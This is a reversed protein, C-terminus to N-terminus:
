CCSWVHNSIHMWIKEGGIPKLAIAAGEAFLSLAPSTWSSPPVSLSFSRSLSVLFFGRQPRLFLACNLGCRDTLCTCTHAWLSSAYQIFYTYWKLSSAFWSPAICSFFQLTQISSYLSLSPPLSLLCGVRLAPLGTRGTIPNSSWFKFSRESSNLYTPSCFFRLTTWLM